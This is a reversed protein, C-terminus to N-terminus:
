PAPALTVNIMKEDGNPKRILLGIVKGSEKDIAPKLDNARAGDIRKGDLELIQDGQGIGAQQAPSGPAVQNVLIQSIMPNLSLSRIRVKLSVGLYGPKALVPMAMLLVAAVAALPPVRNKM